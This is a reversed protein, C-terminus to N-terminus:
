EYSSAEYIILGCKNGNIDRLQHRQSGDRMEAAIDELQAAIADLQAAHGDDPRFAANTTELHINVSKIM